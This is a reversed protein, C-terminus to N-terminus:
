PTVTVTVEDDGTLAGDDARARLVYTGPESFTAHVPVKGDGPMEPATWVPAWPSNAGTRTDEWAAIQEPDFIVQGSGRYVFWSLHLWVNKGVTVRAPPM